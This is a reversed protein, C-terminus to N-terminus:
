RAAALVVFTRDLLEHASLGATLGILVTAAAATRISLQKTM